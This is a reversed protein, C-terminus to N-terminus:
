KIEDGLIISVSVANIGSLSDSSNVLKAERVRESFELANVYIAPIKSPVEVRREVIKEVEAPVEKIIEVPKEVVRIENKSFQTGLILAIISVFAWITHTKM